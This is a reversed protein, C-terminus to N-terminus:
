GWCDRRDCFFFRCLLNLSNVCEHPAFVLFLLFNLSEAVAVTDNSGHNTSSIHGHSVDVEGDGDNAGSDGDEDGAGRVGSQVPPGANGAGHSAAIACWVHTAAIAGGM